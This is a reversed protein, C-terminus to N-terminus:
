YNHWGNPGWILSQRNRERQESKAASRRIEFSRFPGYIAPEEGFATRFQKEATAGRRSLRMLKRPFPSHLQWMQRRASLVLKNM